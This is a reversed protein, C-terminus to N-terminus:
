YDPRPPIGKLKHFSWPQHDAGYHELFFEHIDDWRCDVEYTTAELKRKREYEEDTGQARKWSDYQMRELIVQSKYTTIKIDMLDSEEQTPGGCSLLAM